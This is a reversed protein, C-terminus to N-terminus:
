DARKRKADNKRDELIQLFIDPLNILYDVTKVRGNLDGLHTLVAATTLNKDAIDDVMSRQEAQFGEKWVELENVIDNWVISSKLDEVQDMTSYVRVGEEDKM